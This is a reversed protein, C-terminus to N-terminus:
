RHNYDCHAVEDTAQLCNADPHSYTLYRLNIEYHFMICSYHSYKCECMCSVSLSIQKTKESSTMNMGMFSYLVDSDNLVFFISKGFVSVNDAHKCSKRNAQSMWKCGEKHVFAAKHIEQPLTCLNLKSLEMMGETAAVRM